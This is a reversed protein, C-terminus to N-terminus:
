EGQPKEPAPTWSSFGHAGHVIGPHSHRTVLDYRCGATLVDIRLGLMPADGADGADGAFRADLAGAAPGPRIAEAADVVTVASLGLVELSQEAPDLVVATEDDIGVALPLPNAAQDLAALLRSLRDRQRPVADLLLGAVLGLGPALRPSRRRSGDRTAVAGVAGVTGADPAICLAPLLAAGAGTGGVVMGARHRRRVTEGLPLDAPLPLWAGGGALFLGTADELLDLRSRGAATGPRLVEVSRAGLDYFIDGFREAAGTETVDRIEAREPPLALVVLRAGLGGAEIFFFRLLERERARDVLGGIAILRGAAGAGRDDNADL